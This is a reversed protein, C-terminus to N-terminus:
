RTAFPNRIRMGDITQGDQMDESYLTTCGAELAAAVIMSDYVRFGYREAIRIGREHIGISIPYVSCVACITSLMERIEPWDMRFKGRAVAAFENLVQVSVIPGAAMLSEVRAAKAQSPSTLYLVVNSDLFAESGNM